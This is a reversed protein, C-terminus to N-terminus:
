RPGAKGIQRLCVRTGVVFAGAGALVWISRVVAALWIAAVLGVREVLFVGAIATARRREPLEASRRHGVTIGVALPTLLLGSALVLGGLEWGSM